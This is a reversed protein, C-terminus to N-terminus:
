LLELIKELKMGRSGKLLLTCDGLKNDNLFHCLNETNAFSKYPYDKSVKSFNHGVLFVEKLSYKKIQRLIKKHEQEAYTGLELMDGLILCKSGSFDSVFSEIAAHMSTPNANYADMVITLGKKKIVQSRNNEPKYNEIANVIRDPAVKFFNGICASAMVNDFNYTGTLNTRINLNKGPLNIKIHIYPPVSVPEGTIDAKYCGYSVKKPLNCALEKIINDNCNYFITGGKNSIYNYLEAKTQKVGEFSGFGELHARGVNTIIGYDPDAIKCLMDIEGPHNAGMEVIGIDTKYTMELLTIPVGIHNNLNGKTCAINFKQSLIAATLEKTTTKGNSGTIAIIPLKLKKRHYTALNQLTQM